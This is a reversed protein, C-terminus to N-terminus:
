LPSQRSIWWIALATVVLALMAILVLLWNTTRRSIMTDPKRDLCREQWLVGAQSEEHHMARAHASVLLVRRPFASM